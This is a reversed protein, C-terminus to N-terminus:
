RLAGASLNVVSGIPGIEVPEDGDGDGEVFEAYRGYAELQSLGRATKLGDLRAALYSPFTGFPAVDIAPVLLAMTAYRQGGHQHPLQYGPM